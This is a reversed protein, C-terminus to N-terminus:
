RKLTDVIRWEGDQKTMVKGFELRMGHHNPCAKCVVTMGDNPDYEWEHANVDFGRPEIVFEKGEVKETAPKDIQEGM